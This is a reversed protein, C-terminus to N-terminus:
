KANVGNSTEERDIWKALMHGALTLESIRSSFAQLSREVDSLNFEPRESPFWFDQQPTASAQVARLNAAFADSCLATELPESLQELLGNQITFHRWLSPTVGSLAAPGASELRRIVSLDEMAILPLDPLPPLDDDLGSARGNNQVKKSIPVKSNEGSAILRLAELLMNVRALNAPNNRNYAALTRRADEGMSGPEVGTGALAAAKRKATEEIVSQAHTLDNCSVVNWCWPAAGGSITALHRWIYNVLASGSEIKIREYLAAVEGTAEAEPIEPLTRDTLKWSWCPCM